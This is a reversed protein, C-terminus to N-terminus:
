TGRSLLHKRADHVSMPRDFDNISPLQSQSLAMEFMEESTQSHIPGYKNMSDNAFSKLTKPGWVTERKAPRNRKRKLQQLAMPGDRRSRSSRMDMAEAEEEAKRNLYKNCIDTAHIELMGMYKQINHVSLHLRGKKGRAARVKDGNKGARGRGNDHNNKDVRNLENFVGLADVVSQFGDIFSSLDRELKTKRRLFNNCLKVVSDKKDNLKKVRIQLATAAPSDEGRMAKMLTDRAVKMKTEETFYTSKVDKVANGIRFLGEENSIFKDIIQNIKTTSLESVQKRQFLHSQKEVHKATAVSNMGQEGAELVANLMSFAHEMSEIERQQQVAVNDKGRLQAKLNALRQKIADEEEDTLLGRPNSMKASEQAHKHKERLIHRREQVLAEEQNMRQKEVITVYNNFDHEFNITERVYTNEVDELEEKARAHEDLFRNAKAMIGGTLKRYKVLTQKTNKFNCELVSEAKRLENIEERIRKNYSEVQSRAKRKDDLETELIRVRTMVRNRKNKFANRGDIHDKRALRDMTKLAKRIHMHKRQVAKELETNRHEEYRIKKMLASEDMAFRSIQGDAFSMRKKGSNILGPSSKKKVNIRIHSPPRNTLADERRIPTKVRTRTDRAVPEIITKRSSM